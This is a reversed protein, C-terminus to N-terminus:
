ASKGRMSGPKRWPGPRKNKKTEVPKPKPVLMNKGTGKASVRHALGAAGIQEHTLVIAPHEGSPTYASLKSKTSLIRKETDDKKTVDGMMTEGEATLRYGGEVECILGCTSLRHFVEGWKLEYAIAGQMMELAAIIQVLEAPRRKSSLTTALMLLADVDHVPHM